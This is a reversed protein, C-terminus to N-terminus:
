WISGFVVPRQAMFSQCSQYQDPDWKESYMCNTFYKSKFHTQYGCLSFVLTLILDMNLMWMRFRCM